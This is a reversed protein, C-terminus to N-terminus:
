ATVFSFILPIPMGCITDPLSIHVVYQTGRM